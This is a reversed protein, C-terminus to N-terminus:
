FLQTLFEIAKGFIISDNKEIISCKEIDKLILLEDIDFKRNTLLFIM